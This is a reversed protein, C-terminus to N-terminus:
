NSPGLLDRVMDNDVPIAVQMTPNELMFRLTEESFRLYMCNQECVIEAQAEITM